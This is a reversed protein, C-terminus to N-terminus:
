GRFSTKLDFGHNEIKDENTTGVAETKELKTKEKSFYKEFALYIELPDVKDAIGFSKLIPIHKKRIQGKGYSIAHNCLNVDETYDNDNVCQILMDVHTKVKNLDFRHNKWSTYLKCNIRLPFYILNLKILKSDMHYNDWKALFEIDYDTVSYSNNDKVIHIGFLWYSNCIQLLMFTDKLSPYHRCLSLKDCIDKKTLIFSDTRDFVLTDDKYIHQYVDYFDINKDIIRM